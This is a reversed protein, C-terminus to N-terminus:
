STKQLNVCRRFEAVEDLNLGQASFGIIGVGRHKQQDQKWLIIELAEQISAVEQIWSLKEHYSGDANAVEVEFQMPYM